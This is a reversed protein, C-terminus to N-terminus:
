TPSLSRTSAPADTVRGFPWYEDDGPGSIPNPLEKWETWRDLYCIQESGCEGKCTLECDTEIRPVLVVVQAASIPCAQLKCSSVLCRDPNNAQVTDTHLLILIIVVVRPACTAKMRSVSTDEKCCLNWYHVRSDRQLKHACSVRVVGLMAIKRLQANCFNELAAPEYNRQYSPAM